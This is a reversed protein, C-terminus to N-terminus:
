AVNPWFRRLFDPDPNGPSFGAHALGGLRARGDVPEPGARAVHACRAKNALTRLCAPASIEIFVPGTGPFCDQSPSTPFATTITTAGPLASTRTQPCGTLSQYSATAALSGICATASFLISGGTM